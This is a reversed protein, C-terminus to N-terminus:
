TEPRKGVSTHSIVRLDHISALRGILAETIGDALYEQAPDGSLNQLPLVALSRIRPEVTATARHRFVLWTGAAALCICIIIALAFWPRTKPAAMTSLDSSVVQTPPPMEAEPKEEPEDVPLRRRQIWGDLEDTLAYVSGRKDHVHRHVPMAERKEWRQVTTVDRNLYAAIEKWSDLRKEPPKAVPPIDYTPEGMSIEVATRQMTRHFSGITVRGALVAISPM